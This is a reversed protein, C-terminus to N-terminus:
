ISPPPPPPDLSIGGKSPSDEKLSGKSRLEYRKGSSVPPPKSNPSKKSGPLAKLDREAPHPDTPLSLSDRCPPFDEKLPSSPLSTSCNTCSFLPLLAEVEMEILPDLAKLLSYSISPPVKVIPPSFYSLPSTQM